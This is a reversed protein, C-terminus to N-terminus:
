RGSSTRTYYFPVYANSSGNVLASLAKWGLRNGATM